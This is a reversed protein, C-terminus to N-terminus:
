DHRRFVGAALSGTLAGAIIFWYGEVFQAVIVAVVAALPWVLRDRRARFLGVAMVTFLLPTILDLGLRRPDALVHGLMHGPVTAAVWIVWMSLGSGLFVGADRGGGAAYRSSVVFSADTLMSLALYPTGRPLGRSLYPQLAAGMLLMRLNKEGGVVMALLFCGMVMDLGWRRAPPLNEFAASLAATAEPGNPVLWTDM